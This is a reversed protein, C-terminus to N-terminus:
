RYRVRMNKKEKEENMEREMMEGTPCQVGLLSPSEV